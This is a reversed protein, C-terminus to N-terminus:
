LLKYQRALILGALGPLLPFWYTALRFLLTCTIATKVDVGYTALAAVLGAEVGVLGGPTPLLAGFFVGASYVVLMTTAAFDTVIAPAVERCALWLIFVNTCTVLALSLAALAVKKPNQTYHRYAAFLEGVLRKARRRLPPIALVLVSSIVLGAFVWRQPLREGLQLERISSPVLLCCALLLLVHVIFGLSNNALVVASAQTASHHRRHLYVGHVGMGGVGAPLLRSGLIAANEIIFLEHYPLPRLALQQYAFAALSVGVGVLLVAGIAVPLSAYQVQAIAEQMVDWNRVIFVGFLALISATIIASLLKRM